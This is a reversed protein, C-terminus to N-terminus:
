HLKVARNWPGNLNIYFWEVAPFTIRGKEQRGQTTMVIQIAM